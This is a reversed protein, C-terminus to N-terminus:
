KLAKTKGNKVFRWQVCVSHFPPNSFLRFRKKKITIWKEKTRDFRFYKDLQQHELCVAVIFRNIGFLISCGSLANFITPPTVSLCLLVCEFNQIFKHRRRRGFDFVVVVVVIAHFMIFLIIPNNHHHPEVNTFLRSCSILLLWPVMTSRIYARLSVSESGGCNSEITQMPQPQLLNYLICCADFSISYVVRVFFFVCCGSTSSSNIHFTCQFWVVFLKLRWNRM